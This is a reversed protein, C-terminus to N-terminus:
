RHDKITPEEGVRCAIQFAEVLLNNPLWPAVWGLTTAQWGMGDAECTLALTRELVSRQLVDDLYPVLKIMIGICWGVTTSLQIISLIEGILDNHLPRPLSPLLRLLADARGEDNLIARATQLAEDRIPALGFPVLSALAEARWEIVDIARATELAIPVVQHRLHDPVHETLGILAHTRWLSTEVSRTNEIAERLLDVQQAESLYAFLLGATSHIHDTSRATALAEQVVEDRQTDVAFPVLAALAWGRWLAYEIDRAAALAERLYGIEAFKASLGSLAVDRSRMNTFTRTLTLAEKLLVATLYPAIAALADGQAPEDQIARILSLADNAYGVTALRHAYEPLALTLSAAANATELSARATELIEQILLLQQQQALFPLLTASVEIRGRPQEIIRATTLIENFTAEYSDPSAFPALAVLVRGRGWPSEIARGAALFQPLYSLPALRPALAILADARWRGIQQVRHQHLLQHLETDDSNTLSM